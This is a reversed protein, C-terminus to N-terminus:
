CSKLFHIWIADDFFLEQKLLWSRLFLKNWLYGFASETKLKLFLEGENRSVFGNEFGALARYPEKGNEIRVYTGCTVDSKEKKASAFLAAMFFWENM